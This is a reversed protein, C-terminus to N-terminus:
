YSLDWYYRDKEYVTLRKLEVFDLVSSPKADDLAQVLRKLAKPRIINVNVEGMTVVSRNGHFLDTYKGYQKQTANRVNCRM